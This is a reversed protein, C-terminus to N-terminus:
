IPNLNWHKPPLSPVVGVLICCCSLKWCQSVAGPGPVPPWCVNAYFTRSIGTEAAKEMTLSSMLTVCWCLPSHMYTCFICYISKQMNQMNRCIKVAYKKCKRSICDIYKCIEQKKCIIPMCRCLKLMYRCIVQMNRCIEPMNGPYRKCIQSICDIYKSIQHMNPAYLLLQMNIAYFQM